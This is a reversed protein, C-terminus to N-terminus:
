MPPICYTPDGPQPQLSAAQCVYGESQRCDSVDTCPKLCYQLFNMLDVCIGSASDCSNGPTCGSGTCYGGPFNLYGAISTLCEVTGDTIGICQGADGCPDGVLADGTPCCADGPTWCQADADNCDPGACDSGIGYTDGDNDTCNTGCCAGVWCSADSDNCDEGLCDTGNGYGDGDLDACDGCCAGMWCQADNDDCDAGACDVGVGYGDGDADTCDTGGCCADGVNWCQADADNCDPGACDTGVGYGDGDADTCNVTNNNDGTSDDGCAAASFVLMSAVVITMTKKM